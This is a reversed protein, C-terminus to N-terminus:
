YYYMISDSLVFWRDPHVCINIKIIAKNKHVAVYIKKM